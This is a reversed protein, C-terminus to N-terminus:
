LFKFIGKDVDKRNKKVLRMARYFIKANNKKIIRFVLMWLNTWHMYFRSFEQRYIKNYLYERNAIYKYIHEEKEIRYEKSALHEVIIEPSIICKLGLEKAKNCYRVSFDLDEAYAYGKLKEDWKIDFKNLLSKRVVFFYGMAWETPIETKIVSLRPYRGLISKAVYGTGSKKRDKTGIFYSIFSDEVESSLKDLGAILAIKEDSMIDTIKGILECDIDVDDDMCIYIEEKAIKVGENRAATLSAPQLRSYIISIDTAKYQNIVDVYAEQINEDESQDIIVIEEPKVKSKYIGALTRELSQPRNYTPIIISIM